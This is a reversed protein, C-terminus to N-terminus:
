LCEYNWHAASGSWPYEPLGLLGGSGGLGAVFSDKENDASKYDDNENGVFLRSNKFLLGLKGVAPLIQLPKQM